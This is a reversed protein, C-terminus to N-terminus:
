AKIKKSPKVEVLLDFKAHMSDMPKLFLALAQFGQGGADRIAKFQEIAQDPEEGAYVVTTKGSANKGLVISPRFYM